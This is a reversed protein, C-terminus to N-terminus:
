FAGQLSIGALWTRGPAPEFFRSNGENVIVSGAYRRDGLNDVRLFTRWVRSRSVHTYQLRAGAVTYAEAADSNADNVYIKGAHRAELAATWAPLPRWRLELWATERPVGPIRNGSNAAFGERYEAELWAASASIGFHRWDREAQVELGQRRTEGANRFTTRGGVNTLVVIEDETRVQFAAATGRWGAGAWKAGLEVNDSKAAKLDFNLGTAGGPRYALENTTPTEFGRGVAGYLSFTPSVRWTIGAAPTTAKFSVSGSDDPNTGVVYHDDSRFKVRSARVGALLRWAPAVDWEAQVYQGSDTVRNSEDRRLAGMVGVTTGSFNQFGRRDEDLQDYSAGAVVTFAGGALTTAWTWRGDFGAYGRELDIVGGPHLPNAQPGVPIAQYQQTGRQGGYGTFRLAHGGGLAHDLVAGLQGQDVSKRTNFQIAVPDVSRPNAEYQARTLGLPDLAEPMDLFNGAVTLSTRPSFDYRLKTNAATREAASHDRYGDTEFRSASVTYALPGSTVGVTAGLRWTDDSGFTASAAAAPTAPLGTTVNIVGGSSNGYLVSFPGRLVEIREASQLDIHSFQGQGDPLTAPIGDVLVRVGRVGFTSRAGFGRISIQLDQAYNQRNNAVVGPLAPLTESLNVQLQGERIRRADIADVSAPVDLAQRDTRTATVVIPDGVVPVEQALLTVPALFSAALLPRRM